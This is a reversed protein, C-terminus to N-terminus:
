VYNNWNQQSFLCKERLIDLTALSEPPRVFKFLNMQCSENDATVALPRALPPVPHSLGGVEPRGALGVPLVCCVIVRFNALNSM